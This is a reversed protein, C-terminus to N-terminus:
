RAGDKRTNLTYFRGDEPGHAILEGRRALEALDRRATGRQVPGGSRRRMRQVRGAPWRGGRSRITDLLEALRDEHSGSSM